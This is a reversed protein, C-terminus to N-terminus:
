KSLPPLFCVWTHPQINISVIGNKVCNHKSFDNKFDSKQILNLLKMIYSKILICFFLASCNKNRYIYIQHRHNKTCLEPFHQRYLAFVCRHIIPLFCVTSTFKIGTIKQVYSPFTSDICHLCVDTYLPCFVFM